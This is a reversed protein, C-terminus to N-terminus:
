VRTTLSHVTYRPEAKNDLRVTETEVLSNLDSINLTIILIIQNLDVM